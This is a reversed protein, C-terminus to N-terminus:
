FVRKSSDFYLLNVKLFPLILFFIIYSCTAISLALYM